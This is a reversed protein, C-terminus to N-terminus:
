KRQNTITLKSCTQMFRNWTMVQQLLRIVNLDTLIRGLIIRIVAADDVLLIRKGM